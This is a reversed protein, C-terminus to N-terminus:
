ARPGSSGGQRRLEKAARGSMLRRRKEEKGTEWFFRQEFCLTRRGDELRQLICRRVHVAHLFDTRIRHFLGDSPYNCFDFHVFLM